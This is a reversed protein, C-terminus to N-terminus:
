VRIQVTLRNTSPDLAAIDMAGDSNFDGLVVLAPTRPLDTVPHRFPSQFTGSGNGLMFVLEAKRKGGLALDLIGDFNFDGASLTLPHVSRPFPTRSPEFFEGTGNGILTVVSHRGQGTLVLDPDGDSNFDGVVVAAAREGGRVLIPPGFGGGTVGGLVAIKATMADTVALDLRGDGNFDAAALDRPVHLGAAYRVAGGFSLGSQGHLISIKAGGRESAALDLDGDGNFDAAIMIRAAHALPVRSSFRFHNTGDNALIAVSRDIHSTVATDLDGDSDFDGLVLSSIGHATYSSFIAPQFSGDGNGLLVAIQRRPRINEVLDTLGDGNVDGALLQRSGGGPLRWVASSFSDAGLRSGTGGSTGGATNTTQLTEIEGFTIPARGFAAAMGDVATTYKVTPATGQADLILTDGPRVADEGGGDIMRLFARPQVRVTDNQTSGTFNELLDGLIVTSTSFAMSGSSVIQAAGLLDLNLNVALPSDSFDVADSGVGGFVTVRGGANRGIRFVDGGDLGHLQTDEIGAFTVRPLGTVAVSSSAPSLAVTTGAPLSAGIQYVFTESASTGTVILTDDAGAGAHVVIETLGTPARGGTLNFTDTGALGEITLTTKNSFLIADSGDISVKGTSGGELAPTYSILNNATTANVRLNAAMSLDSVGELNAFDITMATSSGSAYDLRGEDRTFTVASVATAPAGLITLGDHGTGGDLTIPVQILGQAGTDISIKDDGGRSSIKLRALAGAIETITVGTAGDLVTVTAAGAAGTITFIDDLGSPGDLGEVALTDAGDGALRYNGAMAGTLASPTFTVTQSGGASVDVVFGKLGAFEIRPLTASTMRDGAVGGEVRIAADDAVGPMTTLLDDAGAGTYRISSVAHAHLPAGAGLIEQAEPKAPNLGIRVTEALGVAGTIELAGSGGAVSGDITIGGSFPHAAAIAFVNTGTLGSLTITQVESATVPLHTTAGSVLSITGDALVGFFDSAGSGRYSLSNAGGGGVFTLRGSAGLNEFSLGLRSAAGAASEVAVSGADGAAGPAFTFTDGTTGGRVELRDTVGAGRLLLSKIGLATVPAPDAGTLTGGDAAQPTWVIAAGTGHAQVTLSNAGGAAEGGDVEVSKLGTPSNPNNLSIADVGGLAVLKLITKNSFEIAARGNITVAGNATVGGAEYSMTDATATGHLVLPGAVLDTVQGVGAFTITRSGGGVPTIAITGEGVAEGPTHTDASESGGTLTLSNLGIGGAFHLGGAPIPTGNAFSVTVEDDGAGGLVAMTELAGGAAGSIQVANDQNTLDLSLAELTTAALTLSKAGFVSVLSTTAGLIVTSNGTHGNWNVRLSDAGARADLTVTGGMGGFRLAPGASNATFDGETTNSVAYEIGDAGATTNVLLTDGAQGGGMVELRVLTSASGFASVTFSDDGANGSIKLNELGSVGFSRSGATVTSGATTLSVALSDSGATGLVTVADAVGSGADVLISNIPSAGSLTFLDDGDLGQLSLMGIGATAIQIRAGLSVVGEENVGFSDAAATGQHLLTDTRGGLGDLLILSGLQGLNSFTLAVANAASGIGGSGFQQLVAADPAVAPTLVLVDAGAGSRVTLTDAQANNGGDITLAEIGQFNVAPQAVGSAQLLNGSEAGLAQYEFSEANATGSIWLTDAAGGGLITLSGLGSPRAANALTITDGGALADITVTSKNTFQVPTFGDVTVRARSGDDASGANNSGIAYQIANAASTGNITLPGALYDNVLTIGAYAISSTSGGPGPITLAITGQGVAAGPSHEDATASGNLFSLGNSGAGGDYSVGGADLPNGFMFDFTLADNGAFTQVDIANVAGAAFESVAGNQVVQITGPEGAKLSVTIQDDVATGGDDGLIQLTGALVLSAPTIRAELREIGTARSRHPSGAPRRSPRFLSRFSSRTM